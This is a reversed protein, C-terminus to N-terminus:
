IHWCLYMVCTNQLAYCSLTIIYLANPRRCNDDFINKKIFIGLILRSWLKIQLKIWLLNANWATTIVTKATRVLFLCFWSFTILCLIWGIMNQKKNQRLLEVNKKCVLYVYSAAFCYIFDNLITLPAPMWEALWLLPLYSPKLKASGLM